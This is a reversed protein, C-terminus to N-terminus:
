HTTHQENLAHALEMMERVAAQGLFYDHTDDLLGFGILVEKMTEIGDTSIELRNVVLGFSKQFDDMMMLYAEITFIQEMQAKAAELGMTEIVSKLFDENYAQGCMFLLHIFNRRVDDMMEYEKQNSVKEDLRDLQKDLWLGTAQDWESSALKKIAKEVVKTVDKKFKSM